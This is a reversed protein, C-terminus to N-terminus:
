ISPCYDYTAATNGNRTCVGYRTYYAPIGNSKKATCADIGDNSIDASTVPCKASSSTGSGTAFMFTESNWNRDPIYNGEVLKHTSSLLAAPCNSSQSTINNVRCSRQASTIQMMTAIADTARNKDMTKQMSPVAASALIGVILVVIMLEMLTFGRKM